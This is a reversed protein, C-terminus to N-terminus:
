FDMFKNLKKFFGGSTKGAKREKLKRLLSRTIQPADPNETVAKEIDALALDMEKNQFHILGRNHLLTIHTPNLGLGLTYAALADDRFGKDELRKAAKIIGDVDTMELYSKDIEAPAIFSRVPEQVPDEQPALPAPTEPEDGLDDMSDFEFPANSAWLEEEESATEARETTVSADFSQVLPTPEVDPVSPEPTDITEIAVEIQERGASKKEEGLRDLEARLTQKDKDFRDCEAASQDRQGELQKIEGAISVKDDTLARIEEKLKEAKELLEGDAAQEKEVFAEERERLKKVEEEIGYRQDDMSELRTALKQREAESEDVARLARQEANELASLESSLENKEQQLQEIKETIKAASAEATDRDSQVSSVETEMERLREELEEKESQLKEAAAKAEALAEQDEISPGESEVSGSEAIQDRLTQLESKYSELLDSRDEGSHEAHEHLRAAHEQKLIELGKFEFAKEKRISDRERKLAAVEERFMESEETSVPLATEEATEIAAESARLEELNLQMASLERELVDKEQNWEAVTKALEGSEAKVDALEVTAGNWENRLSELESDMKKKEDQVASLEGQVNEVQASSQINQELEEKKEALKAEVAEMEKQRINKKNKLDDIDDEYVNKLVENEEMIKNKEDGAKLILTHLEALSKKVGAYEAEAAEKSSLLTEKEAELTSIQQQVEGKLAESRANTEAEFDSKQTEMETNMNQRNEELETLLARSTETEKGLSEAQNKLEDAAAACEDKEKKTDDIESRLQAMEGQLTQSEAAMEEKKAILEEIESSVTRHKEEDQAKEAEQQQSETEVTTTLYELRSELSRIEDELSNKRQTVGSLNQEEEQIRNAMEEKKSVLEEIESSVSSRKEEDQVREEEKNQTETEVTATLYELRSELSRVEDELSGKKEGIGTLKQEEEQFRIASQEVANTKEELETQLTKMKEESESLSSAYEKAESKVKEVEALDQQSQEKEREIEALVNVLDDKAASLESDATDKESVVQTLKASVAELKTQHDHIKNEIEVKKFKFTDFAKQASMVEETAIQVEEAKKGLEIEHADYKGQTRVLKREIERTEYEQEKVTELLAVQKQEAENITKETETLKATMEDIDTQLGEKYDRLEESEDRLKDAEASSTKAVTKQDHLAAEIEVQEWTQAQSSVLSKELTGVEESLVQRQLSLKGVDSKLQEETKTEFIQIVSRLEEARNELATVEAWIGGAINKREIAVGEADRAREFASDARERATILHKGLNEIHSEIEQKQERQAFIIDKLEIVTQEKLSVDKAIETHKVAQEELRKLDLQVEGRKAQLETLENLLSDKQDLQIQSLDKGDNSSHQMKEVTSRLTDLEAKLKDRELIAGSDADNSADGAAAPEPASMSALKDRLSLKQKPETEQSPAARNSSGLSALLADKPKPKEAASGAGKIAKHCMPCETSDTLVNAGCHPCADFQVEHFMMTSRDSLLVGCLFCRDAGPKVTAKCNPCSPGDEVKDEEGIAREGIMTQLGKNKPGFAFSAKERKMAEGAMTAQDVTTYTILESSGGKVSLLADIEHPESSPAVLMLNGERRQIKRSAKLILEGGEPLMRSVELINIVFLKAGSGLLNDLRTSLVPTDKSEMIGKLHLVPVRNAEELRVDLM